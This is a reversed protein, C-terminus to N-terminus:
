KIKIFTTLQRLNSVYIELSEFDYKHESNIFIFYILIVINKIFFLLFIYEYIM